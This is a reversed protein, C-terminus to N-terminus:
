KIRVYSYGLNATTGAARNVILGGTIAFWNLLDGAVPQTNYAPAIPPVTYIDTSAAGAILVTDIV